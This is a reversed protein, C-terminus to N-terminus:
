QFILSYLNFFAFLIPQHVLYILLSHQGLFGLGKTLRNAKVQPILQYHSCSVGLLVVGFWPVVSVLDVTYRPIHLQEVAWLWPIHLSLMDTFYGVIIAVGLISALKPLQLFLLSAPLAFAAFHIIGFYIWNNPYMLYSGISILVSVSLLKLWTKSLKQWKLGDGYALYASMGMALLFSSVIIARFIRWEIDANTDYHAYGFVTLDYGFHFVVMLVIALGRFVDIAFSRKHMTPKLPNAFLM